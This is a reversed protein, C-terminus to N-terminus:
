ILRSLESVSISIFGGTYGYHRSCSCDLPIESKYKCIHSEKVTIQWMVKLWRLVRRQHLRARSRRTRLSAPTFTIRKRKLGDLICAIQAKGAKERFIYWQLNPGGIFWTEKRSASMRTYFSFEFLRLTCKLYNVKILRISQKKKNEEMIWKQIM